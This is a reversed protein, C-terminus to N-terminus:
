AGKKKGDEDSLYDKAAYGGAQGLGSWFDRTGQASKYGMGSLAGEQGAMAGYQRMQNEWQQQPIERNYQNARDRATTNWRNIEDRAQGTRLRQDFDRGSMDGAMQGGRMMADLARREARGATDAGEESMRQASEQNNGLMLALEAGSGGIGRADMNNTIANRGSAEHRATRNGIKSLAAQDELTLGGSDSVQQLKGLAQMQMARLQPDSQVAGAESPAMQEAVAKQLDPLAANGFRALADEVHKRAEAEQGMSILQGVVTAVAAIAAAYEM